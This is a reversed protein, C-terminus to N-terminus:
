VKFRKVISDTQQRQVFETMDVARGLRPSIVYARFDFKAYFQFFGTLLEGTSMSNKHQLLSADTTFSSDWEKVICKQEVFGYSFM